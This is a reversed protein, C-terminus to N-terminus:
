DIYGLGRLREELVKTEAVSYEDYLSASGSTPDAEESYRVPHNDLFDSDFMDTLVQGDIDDSVQLGLLHLITPALDTIQAGEIQGGTATEM